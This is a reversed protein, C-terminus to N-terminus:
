LRADSRHCTHGSIDVHCSWRQPCCRYFVSSVSNAPLRRQPKLIRKQEGVDGDVISILTTSQRLLDLLLINGETFHRALQVSRELCICATEQAEKGDLWELRKTRWNDLVDSVRALHAWLLGISEWRLNAGCFQGIWENPDDLDDRLRRCTNTCLIETMTRLGAEGQSLTDGFTLQLTQMIRDVAAYAWGTPQTGDNVFRFQENRQGPLCRLLMLSTERLPVPLDRFSIKRESNNTSPTGRGFQSPSGFLSPLRSETEEFVNSFSTYGLYGHQANTRSYSQRQEGVPSRVPPDSDSEHAAQVVTAEPYRCLSKQGRRRCRHCIPRHHDCAVKRARCPVCAVPRGNRRSLLPTPESSM